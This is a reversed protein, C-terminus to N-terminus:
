CQGAEMHEGARGNPMDPNATPRTITHSRGTDPGACRIPRTWGRTVTDQYGGPLFRRSKVPVFGLSRMTGSIRRANGTTKPMDLLDLLPATGISEKGCVAAEVKERLPDADHQALEARAQKLRELFSSMGLSKQM